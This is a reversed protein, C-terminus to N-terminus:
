EVINISLIKVDELPRDNADTPVAALADIIERGNIVYGFVTYNMDLFPSGGHQKYYNRASEDYTFGNRNEIQSLMNDDVPAGQVLYFQSGSSARMPNVADGQRAAAIAGKYHYMGAKIEAPVTYGPGGNGLMQSAPAGKSEPDGGQVMFGAIVRHFLLDNYFGENALKIFNDRHQPTYNSLEVMMVGKSTVIEAVKRRPEKIQIQQEMVTTKSGNKATLTVTFTGWSEYIHTPNEETSSQGDGFTWIYEKANKSYNTFVVEAPSVESKAEMTFLAQPEEACGMWLLASSLALLLSWKKM